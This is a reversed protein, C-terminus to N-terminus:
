LQRSIPSQIPSLGLTTRAARLAWVDVSCAGDRAFELTSRTIELFPPVAERDRIADRLRSLTVRLNRLADANPMEPWLLGALMDRRHAVGPHMVLYPIGLRECRQVEDLGRYIPIIVDVKPSEAENM